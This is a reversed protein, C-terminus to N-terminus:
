FEIIKMECHSPVETPDLATGNIKLSFTSHKQECTYTIGNFTFEEHKDAVCRQYIVEQEIVTGKPWSDPNKEFAIKM